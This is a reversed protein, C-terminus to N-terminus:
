IREIAGLLHPSHHGVCIPVNLCGAALHCARTREARREAGGGKDQGRNPRQEGRGLTSGQKRRGGGRRPLEGPNSVSPLERSRLRPM